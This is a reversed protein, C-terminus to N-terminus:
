PGRDMTWPGIKAVMCAMATSVVILSLTVSNPTIYQTGSSVLAKTHLQASKSNLMLRSPSIEVGDEVYTVNKSDKLGFCVLYQGKM